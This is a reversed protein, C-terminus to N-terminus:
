SVFPSMAPAYEADTYEDTDNDDAAPNTEADENDAEDVERIIASINCHTCSGIGYLTKRPRDSIVVSGM